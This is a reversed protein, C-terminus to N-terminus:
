IHIIDIKNIDNRQLPELVFTIGATTTYYDETWNSTGILGAKDTVMM